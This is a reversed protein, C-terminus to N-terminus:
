QAQEATRKRPATIGILALRERRSPPMEGEGLKTRQTNIWGFMSRGDPAKLNRPWTPLKGHERRYQAVWQYMLEWEDSRMQLPAWVMQIAELREIQEIFKDLGKFKMTAM